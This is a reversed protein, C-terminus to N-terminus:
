NILTSPVLYGQFNDLDIIKLHNLLNRRFQNHSCALLIYTDRPMVNYIDTFNKFIFNFFIDNEYFLHKFEKKFNKKENFQCRFLELCVVTCLKKHILSKEGFKKLKEVYNINQLPFNISTPPTMKIGRKVKMLLFDSKIKNLFDIDEVPLGSKIVSINFVIKADQNPINENGSNFNLYSYIKYEGSELNGPCFNNPYDDDVKSQNLGVPSLYKYLPCILIKGNSAIPTLTLKDTFSHSIYMGAKRGYSDYQSYIIKNNFVVSDVSIEPWHISKSTNNCRILATMLLQDESNFSSKNGLFSISFEGNLLNLSKAGPYYNIYNDMSYLEPSFKLTFLCLLIILRM